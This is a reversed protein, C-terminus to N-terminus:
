RQDDDGGHMANRSKVDVALSGLLVHIIDYCSQWVPPSVVM